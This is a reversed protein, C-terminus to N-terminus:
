LVPHSIAKWKLLEEAGKRNDVVSCAFNDLIEKEKVAVQM